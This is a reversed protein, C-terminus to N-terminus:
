QAATNATSRTPTSSLKKSNPPWESSAVCTIERTRSANPISSCNRLKNSCGLTRPKAPPPSVARRPPPPLVPPPLSRPLPPPDAPHPPRPPQRQRVRLLPQPKQVLQLRAIREVVDRQCHPQTPLQLNLRQLPTHVLDDAPVFHQARPEDAGTAPRLLHHRGPQ